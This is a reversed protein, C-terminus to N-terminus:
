AYRLAEAYRKRMEEARQKYGAAGNLTHAEELKAIAQKAYNGRLEMLRKDSVGVHQIRNYSRAMSDLQDAQYAAREAQWKPDKTRQAAEANRKEREADALKKAEFEHRRAASSNAQNKDHVSIGGGHRVYHTGGAASAERHAKAAAEHNALTPEKEARKSAADAEARLQKVREASAQKPTQPKAPATPKPQVRAATAKAAPPTPQSPKTQAPAAKPAEAAKSASAAKPRFGAFLDGQAGSRNQAQSRQNRIARLEAMGERTVKAANESMARSNIVSAMEQAYRMRDLVDQYPALRAKGRDRATQPSQTRALKERADSMSDRAKPDGKLEVPAKPKNLRAHAAAGMAKSREGAGPGHGMGRATARAAVQGAAHSGGDAIVANYSKTAAHLLANSALVSGSPQAVGIKSWMGKGAM